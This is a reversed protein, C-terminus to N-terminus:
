KLKITTEYKDLSDYGEIYYDEFYDNFIEEKLEELKKNIQEKIEKVLEGHFEQTWEKQFKDLEKKSYDEESKEEDPLVGINKKTDIEIQIITKM